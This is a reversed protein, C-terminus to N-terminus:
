YLASGFTWAWPGPNELIRSPSSMTSSQSFYRSRITLLTSTLLPREQMEQELTERLISSIAIYDQVTLNGIEGVRSLFVNPAILDDEFYIKPNLEEEFLLLAMGPFIIKTGDAKAVIVDSDVIDIQVDDFDVDSFVLQANPQVLVNISGGPEVDAFSVVVKDGKAM